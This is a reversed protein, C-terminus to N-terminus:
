PHKRALSRREIAIAQETDYRGDSVTVANGVTCQGDRLRGETLIQQLLRGSSYKPDIPLLISVFTKATRSAHVASPHM